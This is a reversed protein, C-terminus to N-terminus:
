MCFAPPPQHMGSDLWCLSSAMCSQFRIHVLSSSELMRILPTPLARVPLPLILVFIDDDSGFPMSM